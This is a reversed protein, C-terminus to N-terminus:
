ELLQAKLRALHQKELGVKTTLYEDITGYADRLHSITAKIGDLPAILYPAALEPDYGAARLNENLQKRNEKIYLNSLQHDAIVTEEAVGLALLILAACVGARDKGATCHFVLPRRDPEIIRRFVTGYVAGFLDLVRRYGEVVEGQDLKIALGSKLEAIREDPNIQGHAM